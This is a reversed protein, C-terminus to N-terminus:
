NGGSCAFGASPVRFAAANQATLQLSRNSGGWGTAQVGAIIPSPLFKFKVRYKGFYLATHSATLPLVDSKLHRFSRSDNQHKARKFFRLVSHQTIAVASGGHEARTFHLKNKM